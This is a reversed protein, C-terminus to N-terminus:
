SFPNRRIEQGEQSTKPLRSAYFGPVDIVVLVVVSSRESVMVTLM